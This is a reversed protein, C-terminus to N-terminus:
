GDGTNDARTIGSRALHFTFFTSAALLTFIQAPRIAYDVYFVDAIQKM